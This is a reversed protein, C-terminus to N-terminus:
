TRAGAATSAVAFLITYVYGDFRDISEDITRNSPFSQRAAFVAIVAVIYGFWVIWEGSV